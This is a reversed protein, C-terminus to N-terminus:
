KSRQVILDYRRSLDEHQSLLAAFAERRKAHEKDATLADRELFEIRAKMEDIRQQQVKVLRKILRMFRQDAVSGLAERAAIRDLVSPINFIEGDRSIVNDM